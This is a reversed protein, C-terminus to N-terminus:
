HVAIYGYYSSTFNNSTMANAPTANGSATPSFTALAMPILSASSSKSYVCYVNDKADLAIGYIGGAAGLAYGGIRKTPSPLNGSATSPFVNIAGYSDTTDALPLYLNNASDIAIQFPAYKTTFSRTPAVNGSQASTFASVQGYYGDAVYVTGSTDVALGAPATLGTAGGGIMRAPAVNGNAAAAFVAIANSASGLSTYTSAYIQGAADVAIGRVLKLGTSAGVITRTPTPTGTAGAAYVLIEGNGSTIDQGGVYLNGAVDTAVTAVFMGTPTTLTSATGVNGNASAPFALIVDAATANFPSTLATNNQIVYMTTAGGSVLPGGATPPDGQVDDSRMGSSGCGSVLLGSTVVAVSAIKKWMEM